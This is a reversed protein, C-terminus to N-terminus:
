QHNPKSQKLLTRRVAEKYGYKKLMYKSVTLVAVIRPNYGCIPKKRPRQKEFFENAAVLASMSPMM